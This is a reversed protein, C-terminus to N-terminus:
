LKINLFSLAGSNGWYQVDETNLVDERFTACKKKQNFQFCKFDEGDIITLICTVKKGYCKIVEIIAM